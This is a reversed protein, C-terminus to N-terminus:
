ATKSRGAELAAAIRGAARDAVARVPDDRLHAYRETTSAQSHGLVKGILFLSAGDAAAFSAFSHRLDHIRVEELGCWVRLMDWAKWVGVIPGVRRNSPLVWENVRRRRQLLALAPASLPVVKAGTKSDPLRLCGRDFDVFSWKLTTIEERRCGTLLWLRIADAAEDSIMRMDELVAMGEALTAVERESLFREMVRQKGKRVGKAANTPVLGRGVGWELIASLVALSRAAIGKGGVVVSKGRPRAAHQRATKGEAVDRQFRAVDERTLAAARRTGLLPLVHCRINSADTAWSRAKKDPKDARGETLFLDALEAVTLARRTERKQELPDIGEALDRLLEGARGRAQDVTWPSGHVGITFRRSQNYANRYQLVYVKRGVPTIKLGFGKVQEDWVFADPLKGTVPSPETAPGTADVLKKTLKPM